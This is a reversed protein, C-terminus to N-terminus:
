LKAQGYQVGIVQGKNDGKNFAIWDHVIPATNLHDPIGFADVLSMSVPGLQRCLERSREVVQGVQEVTLLGAALFSAVDAELRSVAYLACLEELVDATTYSAFRARYDHVGQVFREMCVREGLARACAQVADSEELMWVSFLPEHQGGVKQAMSQGLQAFLHQERAVLLDLLQATDLSSISTSALSSPSHSSSLPPPLFRKKQRLAMTEKTVKQMLVRNDGEATMAAHAFGIVDGLKNCALYGQGGCRERCTTGVEQTGWSILPKIVCCLIVVEEHDAGGHSAAYRDKVYNLGFSGAYVAALLPLLARQQLQYTLIAADSHGSAGVTLRTAAYSLAVNMALKSASLAMSAICIRGSLLQDAVKLFRQRRDRISSTFRGQEDVQSYRDLLADRGVRVHHFSLKGNDVGNLAQKQGMDEVTVGQVVSHDDNRIRVLLAHIGENKGAVLLQAFVVCWRADVASNTIWYKQSLVSPSHIIFSSTAPDYTATTEMEVANNGYGLQSRLLLPPPPSHPDRTQQSLQPFTALATHPTTHPTTHHKHTVETLGFCGVQTFRDIGDLMARHHKETGLRYVSGGFLNFQVTCKTAM